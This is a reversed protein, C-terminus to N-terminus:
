PCPGWHALLELFDTIGVIGDGDFDAPHGPNPGWAGLLVLFDTIGVGGGGDFDWPCAAALDRAFAGTSTALLLRAPSGAAYALRTVNGANELGGDFPAFTAGQDESRLVGIAGGQAIYLVQDDVEDCAIDVVRAGSHGTGAWTLGADGSSHVGGLGAGVDGDAVYFRNVDSPSGCLGTGQAQAPLGTSSASWSLGGDGSRLVGGTQPNVGFDTFAALMVTDTGDEVIEITTVDENDVPGEYVKTWTKGADPTRWITPEFGAVGFDSGGALIIGADNLSFRLAFLESEFLPGQDPGINSWSGDGGRRYLAEPAITTPGDSIAHLTGDPAFRVTNYRTPPVMEVTWTAGADTSRQVGGDNLGQFAIAIEDHDNPNAAISVVNLAGIGVSSPDFTAGGDVSKLVGLSSAGLFLNSSSGPAFRVSLLAALGTGGAGIQWSGGGDTSRYVGSGASAALIVDPDNPDVAVDNVVLLPWSGDHLAAWSLGNNVSSYLGVFQSGFLLGGAVLVRSGDFVVDQMPNGPLGASRNVWALGGSDSFWVEGGGFSGGFCAFMRTSDGPAISIGQCSLPSSLPPTADIWTAGGNGSRMVNVPQSGLADAIGAWLRNPASPDITVEFVTDNLGIDLNLQTWSVGDDTSKFVSDQTGIYVTGDPAFEIDYVSIGNLDPVLSWTRASDTSRYLAGGSGSSPAIGALVIGPDVPSVAVDAADGGFPGIATWAPGASPEAPAPPMAPADLAVARAAVARHGHPDVRVTADGGVAPPATAVLVMVSIATQITMAKEVKGPGAELIVFRGCRALVECYSAARGHSRRAQTCSGWEGLLALLDTVGVQDDDDIDAPCPGEAPCDGWSVLLALFDVIGVVGNGDLEAPCFSIPAEIPTGPQSQCAWRLPVYRDFAGEGDFTALVEIWGCLVVM